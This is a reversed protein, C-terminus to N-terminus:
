IPRISPRPSTAAPPPIALPSRPTEGRPTAHAAWTGAALRRIFQTMQHTQDVTSQLQYIISGHISNRGTAAVQRATPTASAHPQGTTTAAGTTVTAAMLGDMVCMSFASLMAWLHLITNNNYFLFRTWCRNKGTNVNRQLSSGPRGLKVTNAKMGDRRTM